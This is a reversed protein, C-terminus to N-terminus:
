EKKFLQSFYIWEKVVTEVDVTRQSHNSYVMLPLSVLGFCGQFM